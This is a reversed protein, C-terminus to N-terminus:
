AYRRQCLQTTVIWLVAMIPWVWFMSLRPYGINELFGYSFTILATGGFSLALAELQVRRQFEDIRAIQRLIAWAMGIGALMPLLAVVTAWPERPIGHNLVTITALLLVLYAALGSGLEVFYRKTTAHM